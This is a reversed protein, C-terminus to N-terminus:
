GGKTRVGRGGGVRWCGRAHRRHQIADPAEGLEDREFLAVALLENQHEAGAGREAGPDLRGVGDDLLQGLGVAAAPLSRDLIAEIAEPRRRAGRVPELHQRRYRSRVGDTEAVFREDFQIRRPNKSVIMVNLKSNSEQLEASTAQPTVSACTM